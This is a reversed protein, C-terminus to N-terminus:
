RRPTAPPAPSCRRWSRSSPRSWAGRRSEEVTEGSRSSPRQRPSRSPSTPSPRRPSPSRSSPRRSSPDDEVPGDAPDRARDAGPRRGAGRVAGRRGARRVGSRLSRPGSRRARPPGPRVPEGWLTASMSPPDWMSPPSAVWAPAPTWTSARPSPASRSSPARRGSRSSTCPCRSCPPAPPRCRTSLPMSRSTEFAPVDVRCRRVRADRSPLRTPRRRPCPPEFAHAEFPPSSRGSRRGRLPTELVPAVEAVPEPAVVRSSSPRPSWSRRRDRSRPSPWRLLPRSSSSRRRRGGAARAPALAAALSPAGPATLATQPSAGALVKRLIGALAEDSHGQALASRLM